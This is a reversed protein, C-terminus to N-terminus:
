EGKKLLSYVNVDTYGSPLYEDQWSIGELVFGCKKAVRNSAINDTSAKIVVKNLKYESFAIDVLKEVCATAIGRGLYGQDVWYMIETKKNLWDIYKFGAVGVMHSEYYIAARFGNNEVLQSLFTAIVRRSQEVSTTELIRPMFVGLHRENRVMLEYFDEADKAMLLQFRIKESVDISFM